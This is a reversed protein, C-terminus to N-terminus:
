GTAFPQSHVQLGLSIAALIQGLRSSLSGALSQRSAKTVEVLRGRESEQLRAEHIAEVLKPDVLVLMVEEKTESGLM